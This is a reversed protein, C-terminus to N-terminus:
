ETRVVENALDEISEARSGRGVAKFLWEDGKRYAKGIILATDDKLNSDIKYEILAKKSIPDYLRIYMNRVDGLRQCRERCRYINLVFVLKDRNTPVKDLYVSINEDDKNRGNSRGTLNDGHHFVCGSPHQLNGFYVTEKENNGTVIVSSDVDMNDGRMSPDWGIGVYIQTLPSNDARRITIEQGQSLRIVDGEKYRKKLTAASYDLIMNNCYICQFNYKGDRCNCFKPPCACGSVVRKGCGECPKLNEDTLFASQRIESTIVSAEEASLTIFDVAKWVGDIKKIEIGFHRKSKKCFGKIFKTDKM